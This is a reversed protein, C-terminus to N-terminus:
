IILLQTFLTAFTACSVFSTVSCYRHLTSFTMAGPHPPSALDAVHWGSVPTHAGPKLPMQASVLGLHGFQARWRM